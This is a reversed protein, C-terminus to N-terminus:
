ATSVTHYHLSSSKFYRLITVNGNSRSEDREELARFVKSSRSAVGKFILQDVDICVYRFAAAARELFLNTIMKCAYVFHVDASWADFRPYKVCM